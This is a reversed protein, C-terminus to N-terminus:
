RKSFQFRRRAGPQGYKKRERTRPDRTLLGKERLAAKIEPSAKLLARAIGLRIAGAQGTPGGGEVSVVIDYKAASAAVTLPETAHMRLNPITLYEDLPRSNVTFKGTGDALRVRAVSTKRRGIASYNTTTQM